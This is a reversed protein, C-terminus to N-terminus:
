RDDSAAERVLEVFQRLEDRNLDSAVWWVRQGQVWRILHYGQRQLMLPPDNEPGSEELWAFLNIVHERRKFILVAVNRRQVYDLRAGLLSFDEGQLDKVWPAFPVKDRFFPKIEHQNNSPFDLLHNDLTLSRVHSAVVEDAQALPEGRGRRLQLLAWVTGIALLVAAALALRRWWRLRAPVAGPLQSRIRRELDPPPVFRFGEGDEYVPEKPTNCGALLLALIVAAGGRCGMWPHNPTRRM